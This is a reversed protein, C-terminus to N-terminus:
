FEIEKRVKHHPVSSCAFIHIVFNKLALKFSKRDEGLRLEVEKVWRGMELLTGGMHAQDYVLDRGGFLDQCLFTPNECLQQRTLFFSSVSKRTISPNHMMIPMQPVNRDFQQAVNM